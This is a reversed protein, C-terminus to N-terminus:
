ISKQPLLSKEKSSFWFNYYSFNMEKPDPAPQNSHTHCVLLSEQFSIFFKAEEKAAKKVRESESESGRAM